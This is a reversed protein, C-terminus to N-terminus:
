CGLQERSKAYAALSGAAAAGASLSADNEIPPPGEPRAWGAATAPNRATAPAYNTYPM